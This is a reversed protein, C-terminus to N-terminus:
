IGHHTPRTQDSQGSWIAGLCGHKGLNTHYRYSIILYLINIEPMIVGM